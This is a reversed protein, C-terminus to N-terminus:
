IRTVSSSNVAEYSNMLRELFWEIGPDRHVREHWIISYTFDERRTPVDVVSLPLIAAFYRAVRKPIIMVADSQAVIMPATNFYPIAVSNHHPPAGLRRLVDDSAYGTGNPYRAVVHPYQCLEVIFDDLSNANYANFPHRAHAIVAYTEVFLDKRHFGEPLTDATYLALDVEGSELAEFTQANWGTVMLACGPAERMFQAAVPVVVTLSGYDTTAIKFDRQATEPDFTAGMFVREAASLADAVVVRLSEALPTLVYGGRTRVLLPDKVAHRLKAVTRSAAPQSLGLQEGSRTVSKTELLAKLMKLLNLDIQDILLM